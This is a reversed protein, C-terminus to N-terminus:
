ISCLTSHIADIYKYAHELAIFAYHVRQTQMSLAGMLDGVRPNIKKENTKKTKKKLHNQTKKDTTFLKQVVVFFITM